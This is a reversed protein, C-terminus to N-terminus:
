FEFCFKVLKLHGSNNGIGLEKEGFLPLPRSDAPFTTKTETIWRWQHETCPDADIATKWSINKKEKQVYEAPITLKEETPKVYTCLIKGQKDWHM